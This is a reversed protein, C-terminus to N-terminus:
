GRFVVAPELKNIKRIGLTAAAVCIFLVIVFV